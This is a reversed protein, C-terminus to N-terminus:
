FVEELGQIQHLFFRFVEEPGYAPHLFRKQSLHWTFFVKFRKQSTHKAFFVELNRAKCLIDKGQWSIGTRSSVWSDM